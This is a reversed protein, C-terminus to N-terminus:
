FYTGCVFCLKYDDRMVQGCKPCVKYGAPVDVQDKIQFQEEIPKEEVKETYAPIDPITNYMDYPNQPNVVNNMNSYINNYQSQSYNSPQNQYFIPQTPTIIPQPQIISQPELDPQIEIEEKPQENLIQPAIEQSIPENNINTELSIPLEDKITPETNIVESEKPLETELKEEGPIEVVNSIDNNNEIPKDIDIEEIFPIEEEKKTEEKPEIEDDIIDIIEEEPEEKVQEEIKEKKEETENIIKHEEKPQEIKKKVEEKEVPIEQIKNEEKLEIDQLSPTIEEKIENNNYIEKDKNEEEVINSSPLEKKIVNNNNYIQNQIPKPQPKQINNQPPIPVNISYNPIRINPNVQPMNYYMQNNYNYPQLQNINQMGVNYVRPVQFNNQNYQPRNQPQVNNNQLKKPPEWSNQIEPKPEEQKVPKKIPQLKIIEQPKSINSNEKPVAPQMQNIPMPNPYGPNPINYNPQNGINNPYVSTNGYMPPQMNYGNQNTNYNQNPLQSVQQNNFQSVLNVREPYSNQFATLPILDTSSEDNPNELANGFDDLLDNSTNTTPTNGNDDIVEKEKFVGFFM